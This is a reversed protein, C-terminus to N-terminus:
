LGDEIPWTGVDEWGEGRKGRFGGVSCRRKESGRQWAGVGGDGTSGAAASRVEVRTARELGAVDGAGKM